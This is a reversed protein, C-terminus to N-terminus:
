KFADAEIESVSANMYKTDEGRRRKRDEVEYQRLAKEMEKATEDEDGFQRKERSDDEDEKEGDLDAKDTTQEEQEDCRRRKESKTEDMIRRKEAEKEEFERKKVENNQVKADNKMM